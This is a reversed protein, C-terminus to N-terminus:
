YIVTDCVQLRKSRCCIRRPSLHNHAIAKSAAADVDNEVINAFALGSYYRRKLHQLSFECYLIHALQLLSGSRDTGLGQANAHVALPQQPVDGAGLGTDHRWRALPLHQSANPWLSPLVTSPGIDQYDWPHEPLDM